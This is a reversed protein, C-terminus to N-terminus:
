PLVEDEAPTVDWGTFSPEWDVDVRIKKRKGTPTIVNFEQTEFPEDFSREAYLEAAYQSSTAEISTASAESGWAACWVRYKGM